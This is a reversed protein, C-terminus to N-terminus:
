FIIVGLLLIKDLFYSFVLFIFKFIKASTKAIKM